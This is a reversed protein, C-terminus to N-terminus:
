KYFKTGLDIIKNEKGYRTLIEIDLDSLLNPIRVVGERELQQKPSIDPAVYVPNIFWYRAFM